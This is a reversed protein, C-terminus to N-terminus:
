RPPLCVAIATVPATPGPPTNTIATEAVDDYGNDVDDGSDLPQLQYVFGQGADGESELGASALHRDAPCAPSPFVTGNAALTTAVRVAVRVM